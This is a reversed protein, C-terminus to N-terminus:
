RPDAGSGLFVVVEEGQVWHNDGSIKRKDGRPASQPLYGRKLRTSGSKKTTGQQGKPPSKPLTLLARLVVLM